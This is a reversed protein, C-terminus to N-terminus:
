EIKEADRLSEILSARLLFKRALVPDEANRRLEDHNRQRVAPDREELLRKNRITQAQTHKIAIQRRQRDYRDIETQQADGHVIRTLKDALNFADHVGSNMGMGGIPSNVHASDGVLIVRGVRFKEAVRQHVTYLNCGCIDFAGDIPLFAKLRKQMAEPQTVKAEDENPDTPFHVRWRDPPGKWHFLNSYEVPDSIYNRETFGHKTFDYAVEINLTREPYTFGDFQVGLERRAVSRAGEASVLYSGEITEPEDDENRVHVTVDDDTQAFGTFTTSMRITVLPHAKAMALAEEIIKIRECQLVFPFKTDDKLHVHDFEAIIEASQRDWYQFKPAVIGRPALREYLGIRDFFELTSPHNSGARPVQDLYTEDSMTEVLTVPVDQQALALTLCLGVPGAGIVIVPKIAAM